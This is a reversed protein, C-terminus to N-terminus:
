SIITFDSAFSSTCMSVCICFCLAFLWPVYQCRFLLACRHILCVSGVSEKARRERGEGVRHMELLCGQDVGVGEGLLGLWGQGGGTSLQYPKHSLSLTCQM